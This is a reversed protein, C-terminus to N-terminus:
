KEACLSAGVVRVVRHIEGIQRPLLSWSRWNSELLDVRFIEENKSRLSALKIPEQWANRKTSILDRCIPPIKKRKSYSFEGRTRRQKGEHLNSRCGFHAVYSVFNPLCLSIECLQWEKSQSFWIKTFSLRLSAIDKRKSIVLNARRKERKLFEFTKFCALFNSKLLFPLALHKVVCFDSRQFFLRLSPIGERKSYIFLYIFLNGRTERSNFRRAFNLASVFFLFFLFSFFNSVEM